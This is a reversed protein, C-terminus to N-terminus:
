GLVRVICSAVEEPPQHEWFRLVTWGLHTLHEDTASDRRRNEQLKKAWWQANSKPWTAHMPCVHWFCGDIFIAIKRSPFVIDARRRLMEPVPYHIRYRLGAAHILTRVARECQTDRRRQRSMRSSTTADILM